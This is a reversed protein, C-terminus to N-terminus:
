VGIVYRLVYANNTYTIGSAATGTDDNHENGVIETDKIYLYKTAANEFRSASMIFNSGYGSKAAVFYKPVFFSHFNNDQEEGNAYGSFVLVIGTPQKSVAESLQAKQTGHMYWAGSWLLKGGFDSVRLWEGWAGSYYFREYILPKAKTCTTIRQLLQGEDGASMVELVFSTASTVPCNLYGATTAANGTYANPTMVTDLDTGKALVPQLIGGSFRTQFGIDLVGALEAIKGIGMGLGTALWHMLTFGTSVNTTRIVPNDSTFSDSAQVTVVYSSGADAPFIYTEDEVSYTNAYDVFEVYEAETTSSPRYWLGYKTKNKGNLSSASCSFTVRVFEGRDNATGDEDCRGVSLKSIIPASYDLVTKSVSASGSRGRKDKVTAKVTLSGSSKLVGTTFSAATYTSGNATTSYSAIASEYALTPTVVVKFKSLGKIFGGYIDSYGTPDTVAVSCSPAVSSPISCKKTYSNSGLSTSGNYTTITYKVSVSTGTTNESAWALPPTFEISTGPSKSCITKSNEGCVATITHTFNNSQRTVTLTQETGLTGNEVSLTSKRPITTLTVNGGYYTEQDFRSHSVKAYVTLSKTGDSNHAINLTKNFLYIGSNTIKDSSSVSATYETGNIKCYVTGSGSTTYGTNTRYFFVKVTVNSTNNTTSYSNETVYIKYKIYDNSTSYVGLTTTTAM